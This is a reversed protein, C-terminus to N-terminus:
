EIFGWAYYDSAPENSLTKEEYYIYARGSDTIIKDVELLNIPKPRDHTGIHKFDNKM